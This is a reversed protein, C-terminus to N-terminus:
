ARKTKLAKSRLLLTDIMFKSPMCELFSPGMELDDHDVSAQLVQDMDWRCEKFDM